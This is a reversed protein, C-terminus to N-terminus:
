VGMKSDYKALKQWSKAFNAVIQCWFFPGLNVVSGPIDNTQVLGKRPRRRFFNILNGKLKRPRGMDRFMQSLWEKLGTLSTLTM